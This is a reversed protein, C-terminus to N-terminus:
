PKTPYARDMIDVESMSVCNSCKGPTAIGNAVCIGCLTGDKMRELYELLQTAGIFLGQIKGLYHQYRVVMENEIIIRILPKGMIANKIYIHHNRFPPYYSNTKYNYICVRNSADQTRSTAGLTTSLTAGLTTDLSTDLSTDLTADLNTDACISLRQIIGVLDYEQRRCEFIIYRQLDKVMEMNIKYQEYCSSLSFRRLADIYCLNSISNAYLVLNYLYRACRKKSIHLSLENIDKNTLWKITNHLTDEHSEEGVVTYCSRIYGNHIFVTFLDRNSEFERVLICYSEFPPIPKKKVFDYINCVNPEPGSVTGCAKIDGILIDDKHRLYTVTHYLYGRKHMMSVDYGGELKAFWRAIIDIWCPTKTIGELYKLTRCVVNIRNKTVKDM